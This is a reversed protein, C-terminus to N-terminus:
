DYTVKCKRINDDTHLNRACIHYLTSQVEIHQVTRTDASVAAVVGHLSSYGRKMWTGDVTLPSKLEGDTDFAEKNLEEASKATSNRVTTTSADLLRANYSVFKTPPPPLNLVACMTRGSAVGKGCTRIAYVTRENVDFM